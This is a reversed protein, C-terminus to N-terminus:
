RLLSNGKGFCWLELASGGLWGAACDGVDLKIGPLRVNDNM